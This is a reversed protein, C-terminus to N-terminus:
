AAGGGIVTPAAKRDLPHATFTEGKGYPLKGLNRWGFLRSRVDTPLSKKIAEYTAADLGVGEMLLEDGYKALHYKVPDSETRRFLDHKM